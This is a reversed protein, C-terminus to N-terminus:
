NRLSVMVGVVSSMEFPLLDSLLRGLRRILGHCDFALRNYPIFQPLTLLNLSSDHFSTTLTRVRTIHLSTASSYCLIYLITSATKRRFHSKGPHNQMNSRIQNSAFHCIPRVCLPLSGPRLTAFDGPEFTSLCDQPVCGRCKPRKQVMCRAAVVHCAGHWASSV